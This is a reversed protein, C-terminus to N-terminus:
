NFTRLSPQNSQTRQLCKTWESKTVTIGFANSVRCSLLLPQVCWSRDGRQALRPPPQPRLGQSTGVGWHPQSEAARGEKASPAPPGQAKGLLRNSLLWANGRLFYTLFSSSLYPLSWINTQLESLALIGPFYITWSLYRWGVPFSILRM